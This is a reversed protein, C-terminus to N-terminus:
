IFGFAALPRRSAAVQCLSCSRPFCAQTTPRLCGTSCHVAAPQANRMPGGVHIMMLSPAIPNNPAGAAGTVTLPHGGPQHPDDSGRHLSALFSQWSTSHRDPRTSSSVDIRRPRRSACPPSPHFTADSGSVIAAQSPLRTETALADAELGPRQGRRDLVSQRSGPNQARCGFAAVPTTGTPARLDPCRSDSRYL